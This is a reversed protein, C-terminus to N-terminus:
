LLNCDRVDPEPCLPERMREVESPKLVEILVDHSIQVKNRQRSQSTIEFNLVAHNNKKALKLIVEPASQAAKLAQLVAEPSIEMNIENNYNSQIRYDTFLSDKHILTM